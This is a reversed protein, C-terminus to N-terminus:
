AATTPTSCSAASRTRLRRRAGPRRRRARRPRARAAVQDRARQRRAGRRPGPLQPRRDRAHAPRLAAARAPALHGRRPPRPGRPAPGGRDPRAAAQALGRLDRRRRAGAPAPPRHLPQPRGPLALRAREDRARRRAARRLRARVRGPARGRRGPAIGGLADSTRIRVFAPPLARAPRRLRRRQRPPLRQAAPRRFAPAPAANRAALPQHGGTSHHSLSGDPAGTDLDVRGQPRQRVIVSLPVSTTGNRSQGGGGHGVVQGDAGAERDRHPLDLQARAPGGSRAALM